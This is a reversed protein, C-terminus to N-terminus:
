TLFDLHRQSQDLNCCAYFTIFTALEHSFQKGESQLLRKGLPDLTKVQFDPYSSNQDYGLAVLQSWSWLWFKWIKAPLDNLIM